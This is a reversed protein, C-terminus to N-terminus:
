TGLIYGIDLQRLNAARSLIPNQHIMTGHVKDRVCFRKLSSYDNVEDDQAQKKLLSEAHVQRM